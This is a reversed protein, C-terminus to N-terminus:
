FSRAYGAFAGSPTVAVQYSSEARSWLYASVAATLVTAGTCAFAFQQWHAQHAAETQWVPPPVGRNYLDNVRDAAKSMREVSYFATVVLALTLGSMALAETRAYRPPGSPASQSAVASQAASGSIPAAEVTVPAESPMPPPNARATTASLAICAASGRASM